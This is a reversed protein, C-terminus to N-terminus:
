EGAELATAHDRLNKADAIMKDAKARLGRADNAKKIRGISAAVERIEPGTLGSDALGLAFAEIANKKKKLEEPM